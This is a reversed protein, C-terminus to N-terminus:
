GDSNIIAMCKALSAIKDEDEKVIDQRLSRSKLQDTTVILHISRRMFCVVDRM